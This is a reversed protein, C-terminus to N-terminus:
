GDALLDACLARVEGVLHELNELSERLRDPSNGPCSLVAFATELSGDPRLALDDVAGLAGKENIPYRENLAHLSQVLCAVCQFFSGSAHFVDGREVPGRTTDLAFGAKWLQSRALAMKLLPPYPDALPKLDQLVNQPDHLPVCHHIEGLYIHTHFGHPHGPQHHLADLEASKSPV